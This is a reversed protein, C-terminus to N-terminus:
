DQDASEDDMEKFEADQIDMKSYPNKAGTDSVPKSRSHVELGAIKKVWIWGLYILGAMLILRFM